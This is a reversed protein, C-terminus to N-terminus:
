EGEAGKAIIWQLLLGVARADPTESGMPPMRGQGIRAVRNFMVSKVPDGPKIIRADKGLGLDGHHPVTDFIDLKEDDASLRLSMM